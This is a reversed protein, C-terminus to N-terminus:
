STLSAWAAFGALLLILFLIAAIDGKSSPSSLLCACAALRRSSSALFDAEPRSMCAQPPTGLFALVLSAIILKEPGVARLSSSHASFLRQSPWRAVRRISM